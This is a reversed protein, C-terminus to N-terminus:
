KFEPSHFDYVITPSGRGVGNGPRVKEVYAGAARYEAMRSRRPEEGNVLIPKAQTRLRVMRKIFGVLTEKRRQTLAVRTRRNRVYKTKNAM